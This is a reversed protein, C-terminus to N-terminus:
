RHLVQLCFCCFGIIVIVQAMFFRLLWLVLKLTDVVHLIFSGCLLAIDFVLWFMQKMSLRRRRLVAVGSYRLAQEIRALSLLM